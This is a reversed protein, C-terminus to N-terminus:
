REDAGPAYERERARRHRVVRGIGVQADVRARHEDLEDEAHEDPEQRLQAARHERYRADDDADCGQQRDVDRCGCEHGRVAQLRVLQSKEPDANGHGQDEVAEDPHFEAAPPDNWRPKLRNTVRRVRQIEPVNRQDDQDSPEGRMVHARESVRENVGCPEGAHVHEDEARADQDISGDLTRHQAEEAV